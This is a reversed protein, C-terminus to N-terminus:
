LLKLVNKGDLVGEILETINKLFILLEFCYFNFVYLKDIIEFGFNEKNHRIMFVFNESEFRKRLTM